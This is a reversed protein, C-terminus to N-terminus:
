KDTDGYIFIGARMAALWKPETVCGLFKAATSFKHRRSDDDASSWRWPQQPWHTELPGFSQEKSINCRLSSM